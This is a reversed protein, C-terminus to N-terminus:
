ENERHPSDSIWCCILAVLRIANKPEVMWRRPYWEDTGMYSRIFPFKAAPVIRATQLALSKKPLQTMLAKALAGYSYDLPLQPTFNEFSSYGMGDAILLLSPAGDAAIVVAPVDIAEWQRGRRRQPAIYDGTEDLAFYLSEIEGEHILSTPGFGNAHRYGLFYLKGLYCQTVPAPLTHLSSDALSPQKQNM